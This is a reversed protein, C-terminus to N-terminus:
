RLREQEVNVRGEELILQRRREEEVLEMLWERERAKQLELLDKRRQDEFLARRQQQPSMCYASLGESSRRSPEYYTDSSHMQSSSGTVFDRDGDLSSLYSSYLSHYAQLALRARAAHDRAEQQQQLANIYQDRAAREALAQANGDIPSYYNLYFSYPINHYM